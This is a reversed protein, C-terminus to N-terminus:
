VYNTLSQMTTDDVIKLINYKFNIVNFVFLERRELYKNVNIANNWGLWMKGIRTAYYSPITTDIGDFNKIIGPNNEDWFGLYWRKKDKTAKLFYDLSYDRLKKRHPYGIWEFESFDEKRSHLPYIWNIDPYDKKFKIMEDQQYDPAVAYIISGLGYRKLMRKLYKIDAKGKKEIFHNDLFGPFTLFGSERAIKAQYHELRLGPLAVIM